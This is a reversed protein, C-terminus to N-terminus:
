KETIENEMMQLFLNVVDPDFLKGSKEKLYASVAQRDWAPRYPRDSLLADWVDVVAFIRAAIPIERGKLGRPYGSGDWREHHAFPIVLAQKLYEIDKLLHFANMPHQRMIVWEDSTLPGPKLLINDPVGVKGIDHLLAGRQIDMLENHDIGMKKAMQVTYEVVRRSHDATEHERLDLARAWGELTAEYARELKEHTERLRTEAHIRETIDRTINLLCDEGNINILSASMLGHLISGDKMRFDAELNRHFGFEKLGYVLKARDEVNVWINLEVSTKGIVDERSYGTMDTFGQNIDLYMGDSLRNINISDPSTHFATSFKEESMRLAEEQNIRESIDSFFTAMKGPSTQFANVDFIGIFRETSSIVERGNWPLGTRAVTKYKEIVEPLLLGPFCEEITKGILVSHDIHLIADASPNYGTFILRSNEDLFYIHLGLPVEEIVSRYKQESALNNEEAQKLSTIDHSSIILTQRGTAKHNISVGSTEAWIYHGAAHKVRFQLKGPNGTELIQQIAQSVRAQDDPHVLSFANIKELEESHYGLGSFHSPSSYLYKGELDIEAVMDTMHDTLRKLQSEKEVRAEEAKQRLLSEEKLTTLANAQGIIYLNIQKAFYWEILLFGFLCIFVILTASIHGLPVPNNSPWLVIAYTISCLVVFLFSTRNGQLFGSLVIAFGYILITSNEINYKGLSYTGLLYCVIPPIFRAWRWGGRKAGQWGIFLLLLDIFIPHSESFKYIGSLVCVLVIVAPISTLIVLIRLIETTWKELNASTSSYSSQHFFSKMSLLLRM